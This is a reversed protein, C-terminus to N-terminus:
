LWYMNYECGILYDGLRLSFDHRTYWLDHGVHCYHLLLVFSAMSCQCLHIEFAGYCDFMDYQTGM